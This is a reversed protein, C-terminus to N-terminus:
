PTEDPNFVPAEITTFIESIIPDVASNLETTVQIQNAGTLLNAARVMPVGHLVATPLSLDLSTLIGSGHTHYPEAYITFLGTIDTFEAPTPLNVAGIVRVPFGDDATGIRVRILLTVAGSAILPVNLKAAFHVRLVSMQWWEPWTTPPSAILRITEAHKPYPGYIGGCKLGATYGHQHDNRSVDEGIGAFPPGLPVQIAPRDKRIATSAIFGYPDLEAMLPSHMSNDHVAVTGPQYSGDSRFFGHPTPIPALREPPILAAANLGAYGLPQDRNAIKELNAAAAHENSGNEHNSLAVQTIFDSTHHANGHETPTQPHLLVGPLGSVDIRDAGTAEHKGAHDEPTQPELLKGRLGDLNLEDAGDEEHQAAHATVPPPPPPPEESVHITVTPLQNNTPDDDQAAEIEGQVWFDGVAPPTWYVGAQATKTTGPAIQNATLTFSAILLRTSCDYIRLRGTVDAPYRGLNEVDIGPRYAELYASVPPAQLGVVKVDFDM